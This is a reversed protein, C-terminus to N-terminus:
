PSLLPLSTRGSPGSDAFIAESALRHQEISWCSQRMKKLVSNPIFDFFMHFCMIKPDRDWVVSIPLHTVKCQKAIRMLSATRGAVQQAYTAGDNLLNVYESDHIFEGSADIPRLIIRNPAFETLETISVAQCRWISVEKSQADRHTRIMLRHTSMMNSERSRLLLFAVQLQLRISPHLLLRVQVVWDSYDPDVEVPVPSDALQAQVSAAHGERGCNGFQDSGMADLLEDLSVGPMPDQGLCTVGLTLRQHDIMFVPGHLDRIYFFVIIRIADKRLSHSDKRDIIESQIKLSCRERVRDLHVLDCSCAKVIRKERDYSAHLEVAHTCAMSTPDPLTRLLKTAITVWAKGISKLWHKVDDLAHPNRCQTRLRERFLSTGACADKHGAKWDEKQCRRCCYYAIGCGSCKQFRRGLEEQSAMCHHCTRDGDSMLNMHYKIGGTGACSVYSGELLEPLKAM